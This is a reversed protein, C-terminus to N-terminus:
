KKSIMGLIWLLVCAGIVAMILQGVLGYAALGVLSFLFGGLMAGVIGVVINGLAGFGSGKMIKGALFGALAGILLIYILSTGVFM